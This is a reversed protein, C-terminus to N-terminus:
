LDNLNENKKILTRLLSKLSVKVQLSVKKKKCINYGPLTLTGSNALQQQLM